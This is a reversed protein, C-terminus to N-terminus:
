IPRNEPVHHEARHREPSPDHLLEPPVGRHNNLTRRVVLLWGIGLVATVLVAVPMAGSSGDLLNGIVFPLVLGGLGAASVFWSTARGSLTIREEAYAIMTAFQPAVAVGILGTTVWVAVPSGDTLTMAVLLVVTLLCSGALMAGSRIRRALVVALLRGLTFSAWFLTNLWTPSNRGPLNIGEAYTKLWGSFGVEVGIYLFFFTAIVALIRVPTQPLEREPGAARVDTPAEHLLVLVAMLTAYAALLATAVSLGDTWALSRNVVGPSLLAGIGFFLHLANLLRMSGSGRAHWVVLTNGGVDVCAAFAGVCAVPVSLAAVSSVHPIVLASAAVGLLAGSMARHGFGRDYLRGSVLSGILYGVAQAVFLVGIEGNSVNARDRLYTLAPGLLSLSLGVTIFVALYLGGSPPRRVATM